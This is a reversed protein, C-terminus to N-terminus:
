PGARRAVIVIRRKLLVLLRLLDRGRRQSDSRSYAEAKKPFFARVREKKDM